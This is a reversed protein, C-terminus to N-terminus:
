HHEPPPPPTYGAHRGVVPARVFADYPCATAISCQNCDVCLDHRVELRLSGNGLPPKCFNVCRGCGNCKEEDISYEYPQNYPDTPDIPGVAKRIIADQPCIRGVHTGDDARPSNVDHYAPCIFCYGCRDFDNVARVASRKLVCETACRAWGDVDASDREIYKACAQCLDPNVQWVKDADARVVLGAGVAGVAAAGACRCCTKLFDRRTTKSDPADAM